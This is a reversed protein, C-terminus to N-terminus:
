PNRGVVPRRRLALRRDELLDKFRVDQLMAYLIVNIAIRFADKTVYGSCAVSAQRQLACSIDYRSYIVVDASAM